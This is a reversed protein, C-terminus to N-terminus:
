FPAPAELQRRELERGPPVDKPASMLDAGIKRLLIARSSLGVLRWQM